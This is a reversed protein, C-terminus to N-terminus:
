GSIEMLRAGDTWLLACRIIKAPYIVQLTDAYAKMQARYIAPVDEVNHPPPRNTKYDVILIDNDRVVMRDIQGSILRGDDLLGTIPIEAVSHPGFIDGFSPDSLLALVEDAIDKQLVPPLSLNARALFRQAAIRRSEEPLDPLTQLLRHTVTGRRFRYTDAAVLPSTAAPEEGSPRSPVLPKSPYPESPARKNLWHPKEIFSVSTATGADVKVKDPPATRKSSLCLIDLPPGDSGQVSSPQRTTDPHIELAMRIDEYWYATKSEESPGKKNVYGGIYLREEARTMAVYLLRRYEEEAKEELIKRANLAADPATNKSPVYLPVNENTKYPWLINDVKASSATRVTDPLFVVPAQLGKAGHVTMIRVAGSGEELERKIEKRDQEQAKLFGQLAATNSADYALATNLFEDLPDIAEDGLRTRIARMGSHTDAPCAGQVLRSFFEYPHESGARAILSKLWETVIVDGKKKLREWLSGSRKSSVDYLAEESMGVLPSKLLCALNLDDDPLLAFRAAACLDQVVIQEGLVMRDVGSVPISRIKLASVMQAVFAGRARVLIMIDGPQIPRAYAELIEQNTIWSKIMDGIKNAMQSAGSQSEVIEDPIVWGKASPVATDETSEDQSSSKFLPWIEVLGAQGKRKVIHNLYKEGLGKAAGPEAFVADVSDLVSKVSRFSTNIDVEQLQQGSEKTKQEFYKRMDGFKEPAARQFSFISQKEDGVVFLTRETEEQAGLGNFFEDSLLRIIDWQEPNTDQAEDVLIHDIGGDLKFMVWAPVSQKNNQVTHGQLLSLAKLILDNFDLAGRSNKLSQYEELIKEGILFLDRTAAACLVSKQVDEHLLIRNAEDSFLASAEPMRTIVFKTIHDKYPQGDTKLFADKYANYLAPRESFPADLFSQIPEIKELDKKKDSSAMIALAYRFATVTHDEMRCFEALVQESSLGASIGLHTCINTHLGEVGFFRKLLDEMQRRESSLQKLLGAFTEENMMAGLTRLANGVPTNSNKGAYSFVTKRADDLLLNAEDEELAKFNPTLGAELPFRGLVSQCFSHITMIKLGGATDMVRAFLQRAAVIEQAKPPRSLLAEMDKVLEGEDMVAWRSLRSSLRLTMENAGAKTFTLALIKEPPTGARADERPLLLRLLRDTLVKTKGSGASAGVWASISPNSAIRQKSTADSLIDTKANLPQQHNM